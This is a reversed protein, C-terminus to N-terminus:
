VLKQPWKKEIKAERLLALVENRKETLEHMIPVSLYNAALFNLLFGRVRVPNIGTRKPKAPDEEGLTPLTKQNEQEEVTPDRLNCM